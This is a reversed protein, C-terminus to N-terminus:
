IYERIEVDHHTSHVSPTRWSANYNILDCGMNIKYFTLHFQRDFQDLDVISISFITLNPLLLLALLPFNNFNSM